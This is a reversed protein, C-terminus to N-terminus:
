FSWYTPKTDRPIRDGEPTFYWENFETSCMGVCAIEIMGDGNPHPMPTGEPIITIKNSGCVICKPPSNRGTRWRRRRQLEGLQDRLFEQGKGFLDDLLGYRTMRYLESAPDNLARIKQDIEEVTSLDEGETFEACCACWVPVSHLDLRDSESFEYYNGRSGFFEEIPGDPLRRIEYSAPMKITSWSNVPSLSWM